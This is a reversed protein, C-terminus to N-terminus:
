DLEYIKRWDKEEKLEPQDEKKMLFPGTVLYDIDTRMFCLYADQPTCCIPEGRVNFSTNLIVPTGTKKRFGEILDWYMANDNRDITQLRASGDVHTIAPLRKEGDITQAVMLMFPSPGEFEFYESVHEVQVTPAFPRFKERHKVKANIIDKMDERRPDAIISRNGLARPGFEMRGQYWGIVNGEVLLDTVKNLLEDREHLTYVANYEDLGNKIEDKSFENGLYAHTMVYTRPNKLVTNWIYFAVGVAGGADGAAPQVYIDEFPSERKLLGNAV